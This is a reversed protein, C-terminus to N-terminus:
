CSCASRCGPGCGVGFPGASYWSGTYVVQQLTRYGRVDVVETRDPVGFVGHLTSQPSVLLRAGGRVPMPRGTASDIIEDVYRVDYGQPGYDAMDVVLRDYCDHRGARVQYMSTEVAVTVSKPTSGWSFGCYPAAAVPSAAAVTGTLCVAVVM